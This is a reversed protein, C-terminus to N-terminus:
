VIVIDGHVSDVIHEFRPVSTLICEFMSELSSYFQKDMDGFELTLQNGMEVSYFM